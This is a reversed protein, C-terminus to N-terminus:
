YPGGTSMKSKLMADPIRQTYGAISQYWGSEAASGNNSGLYLTGGNAVTNTDTAVSAGGTYALSRGAAAWALGSRTASTWTAATGGLLINTGNTTGVKGTTDHYLISNTGRILNTIAAPASSNEAITQLIISGIGGAVLTSFPAGITVVDANRTVSSAVTPIYSTAYSGLEMQAGFVFVTQGVTQATTNDANPVSFSFAWSVAGAVATWKIRYISNGISEISASGTNVTGVTGSAINFWVSTAGASNEIGIWSGTGARVYASLTYTSGNVVTAGQYVAQKATNSTTLKTFNQLGNPATYTTDSTAVGLTNYINWNTGGIINSYTQLNTRAEEILFGNGALTSPNYDNTRPGYYLTSGSNVVLDVTRPATEYTVQSYGVNQVLIGDTGNGTGQSGSSNQYPYVYLNSSGQFFQIQVYNWGSAKVEAYMIANGAKFSIRWYGSGISVAQMNTAPGSNITTTYSGNTLDFIFAVNTIGTQFPLAGSMVSGSTQGNNLVVKTATTGGSSDTQGSTLTVNTKTWWANSYTASYQVQQNGKYTLKGASDFTTALTAGTYTLWSPLTGVLASTFNWQVVPNIKGFLLVRETPTLAVALTSFALLVLALANRLFRM